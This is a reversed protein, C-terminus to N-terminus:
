RPYDPHKKIKRIQNLHRDVHEFIFIYLQHVNAYANYYERLNLKNDQLSKITDARRSLFWALNNEGSNIGLPVTYSFPKTYEVAKHPTTEKSYGIFESDPAAKRLSDRGASFASSIEHQFLLEWIAMHEVVQSASWRDPSEKFNWQEATMGASEKQLEERSRYLNDLLFKRDQETWVTKQAFSGLTMMMLLFAYLLKKKM